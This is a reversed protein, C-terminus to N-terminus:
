AAAHRGDAAFSLSWIRSGGPCPSISRVAPIEEIAGRWPLAADIAPALSPVEFPGEGHRRAIVAVVAASAAELRGPEVAETEARMPSGQCFGQRANTRWAQNRHPATSCRSISTPRWSASSVRCRPPRRKYPSKLAPRRNWAVLRRDPRWARRALDAAYSVFMLEVLQRDHLQPFAGIFAHDNQAM